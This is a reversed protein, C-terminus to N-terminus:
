LQLELVKTVQHLTLESSFVVPFVLATVIRVETMWTIGKNKLINDLNIMAKRRLLVLRKIDHNCNGDM